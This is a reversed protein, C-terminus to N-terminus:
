IKKPPIEISNEVTAASIQLRVLLTRPNGKGVDEAASTTQQNNIIAMRVPIFCFRITTRIQM